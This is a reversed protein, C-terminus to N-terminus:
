SKKDITEIKSNVDNAFSQLSSSFENRLSTSLGDIKENISNFMSFIKDLNIDPLDDGGSNSRLKKRMANVDAVKIESVM